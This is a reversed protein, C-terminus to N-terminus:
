DRQGLLDQRACFYFLQRNIFTFRCRPIKEGQAEARSAPRRTVRSQKPKIAVFHGRSIGSGNVSDGPIVSGLDGALLRLLNNPIGPASISAFIYALRPAAHLANSRGSLHMQLRMTRYCVVCVHHPLKPLFVARSAASLRGLSFTGTRAVRSVTNKQRIKARPRFAFSIQNKPILNNKMYTLFQYYQNEFITEFRQM